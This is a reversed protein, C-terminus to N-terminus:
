HNVSNPKPKKAVMEFEYCSGNKRGREIISVNTFGGELLLKSLTDPTFMNFHFDGDYDQAGYFVERMDDYPYHGNSYEQIMAEADPVVAHFEGGQKILNFFYPLLERRLQEQPFHEL